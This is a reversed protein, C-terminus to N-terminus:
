YYAIRVDQLMATLTVKWARTPDSGRQLAAAFLAYTADVDESDDDVSEGFLRLYLDAIQERVMAEGSDNPGIRTLLKPDGGDAAFDEDVVFHAAERALAALVLSSTASYTHSPRSVYYSDIGGFLVQYGLFSDRLLDVTGITPDGVNTKWEFGTTDKAFQALQVPRIKKVALMARPDDDLEEEFHSIRFDDSLMIAKTLAKADFGSEVLTSQLQAAKELPVDALEVQQFYAYFRKATCQAFRPDDAILQGLDETEDGSIGFYAPERMPVGLGDPFIEPSYSPVPYDVDAPVYLPYYSRFFSALPDLGQHCSACSPNTVVANAVQDPDALNVNSDVEIDRSLFDYCLLARSIANARGRNANSATSSHRQYLWADSLIGANGRGDEWSSLEWSEGDGDYPLGWIVSATGDTVTYDATVIESYPLDNAVVHEILRLPGETVSRNLAYPDADALEGKPLFGAPFVFYDILVLLTDNHLDRITEGFNPSAMYADVIGSLADPDEAVAAMEDTSPRTGRLAMSIRVLHETPTLYVPEVDGAGDEGDGSDDDPVATDDGGDDGSPDTDDTEAGDDPEAGSSTESDRCGPILLAAAILWRTRTKTNM